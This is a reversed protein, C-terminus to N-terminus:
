ILSLQGPNVGHPFNLRAFEGHHKIAMEDHAMAAQVPDDFYGLYELKGDISIHAVYHGEDERYYVGKFPCNGKRKRPRNYQNQQTTCTRLNCRRNDIGCGNVHDTEMGEPTNMILRHMSVTKGDIHAVAYQHHGQENLRWRFKSMAEYDADDVLAVADGNLPITKM